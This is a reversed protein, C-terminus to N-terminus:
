SDSEASEQVQSFHPPELGMEVELRQIRSGETELVVFRVGDSRVQDGPEAARGLLDFVYGAVTHYDEHELSTGFQENFDDLPFTGDIRVTHEDVREVSRFLM